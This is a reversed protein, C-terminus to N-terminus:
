DRSFNKEKKLTEVFTEFNKDILTMLRKDIEELNESSKLDQYIKLIKQSDQMDNFSTPSSSNRMFPSSVRRLNPSFANMDDLKHYIMPKAIFNFLCLQRDNLLIRKLKEVDHLKKLITIVDIEEAFIKQAESMMKEKPSMNLHFTEAVFLKLFGFISMTVNQKKEHM